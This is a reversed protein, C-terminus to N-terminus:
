VGSQMARAVIEEATKPKPLEYRPAFGRGVHILEDVFAIFLIVLGSSYGLQPIWLPVAIVGQSIDSFKLSQVLTLFKEMQEAAADKPGMLKFVWFTRGQPAIAALMRENAAQGHGAPMPGRQPMEEVAERKSHPLKKVTYQKIEDRNQCGALLLCLTAGLAVSQAARAPRSVSASRVCFRM